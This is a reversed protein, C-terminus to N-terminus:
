FNEHHNECHANLQDWYITHIEWLHEFTSNETFTPMRGNTAWYQWAPEVAFKKFGFPVRINNKFLKTIYEFIPKPNMVEPLEKPECFLTGTPM